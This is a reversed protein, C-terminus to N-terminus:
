AQSRTGEVVFRFFLFFSAYESEVWFITHWGIIPFLDVQLLTPLSCARVMHDLVLEMRDFCMTVFDRVQRVCFVYSRHTTFMDFYVHKTAVVRAVLTSDKFMFGVVFLM